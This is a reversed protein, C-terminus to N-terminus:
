FDHMEDLYFRIPNDATSQLEVAKMTHDRQIHTVQM